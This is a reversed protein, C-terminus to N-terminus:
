PCTSRIAELSATCQTALQARGEATKALARFTERQLQLKSKMAATAEPGMKAFCAEYRDIYRDCVDVRNGCATGLVVACTLVLRVWIRM